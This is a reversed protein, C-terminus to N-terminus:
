LKLYKPREYTYKCTDNQQQLYVLMSNKAHVIINNDTRHYSWIFPSEKIKICSPLWFMRPNLLGSFLKRCNQAFLFSLHLNFSLILKRTHPTLLVGLDLQPPSSFLPIPKDLTPLQHEFELLFLLRRTSALHQAAASGKLSEASIEKCPELANM